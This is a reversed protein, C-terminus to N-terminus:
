FRGSVAKFLQMFVVGHFLFSPGLRKKSSIIIIDEPSEMHWSFGFSVAIMDYYILRIENLIAGGSSV